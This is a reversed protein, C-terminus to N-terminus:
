MRRLRLAKKIEQLMCRESQRCSICVARTSAGKVEQKEEDFYVVFSALIVLLPKQGPEAVKGGKSQVWQNMAAHGLHYYSEDLLVELRMPVDKGKVKRLNSLREELYRLRLRVNQTTDHM